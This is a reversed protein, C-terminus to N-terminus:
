DEFLAEADRRTYTRGDDDDNDPYNAAKYPETGETYYERGKVVVNSPMDKYEGKKMAPIQNVIKGWLSAAATSMTSLEDNQDTGIWLSASYRPTFGCFWIDYADNTTGTKGGPQVDTVYMYRNSTVVSKLIDTMIWAVGEDLVKTEESEGVLIENDEADLVRTYCVGSNRVGGNPFTAYALSMDLPTVGNTMAGLALAAPNIDNNYGETVLTSIGYNELMKESYDFGVQYLIKVACTNISQQIAQRFTKKGTFRRTVNYPWIRGEVTCKEDSVISSATIYEGWYNTGQKDIHYNVFPFEQGRKAYDYSKQLAASYVALPKISSGPQRPSTARNFLKEGVGYRGGVMAKINGTGVETIVMAAQTKDEGYNYPFNNDNKFEDLIVGQAEANVTSYIKLGGTYVYTEADEKSMNYEKAIDNTLQQVLYDKFYTYTSDNHEISPNLIDKVPKSAEAEESESIYGQEKMLKLVLDRRDECASDAYIGSSIKTTTDSKSTKIPAYTDPAQPLAALIACEQLTLDKVDKSFYTHAASDVGYCGFGFYITNLYAEIIEDKSLAREIQIAYFFETLKRDLSRESMKDTLFVNRALQQTITSTGSIQGGSRFHDIIAGIIRKFNIGHHKYFTKDEIAIFSNLLVDPMEDRSIINRNQSYYLTDILNGKDDYLYSTKQINEYISSPDIPPTNAYKYGVFGAVGLTGLLMLILFILLIKKLIKM